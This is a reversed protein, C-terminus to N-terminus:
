LYVIEYRDIKCFHRFSLNICMQFLYISEVYKIPQLQALKEELLWDGSTSCHPCVNPNLDLISVGNLKFM